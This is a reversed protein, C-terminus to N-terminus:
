RVLPESIRTSRFIVFRRTSFPQDQFSYQLGSRQFYVDTLRDVPRLGSVLLNEAIRFAM